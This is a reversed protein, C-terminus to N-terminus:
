CPCGGPSGRPCCSPPRLPVVVLVLQLKDHGDTTLWAGRHGVYVCIGMVPTSSSARMENGTSSLRKSSATCERRSRGLPHLPADLVSGRRRIWKVPSRRQNSRTQRGRLGEEAGGVYARVLIGRSPRQATRAPGAGDRAAAQAAVSGPPVTAEWVWISQLGLASAVNKQSNVWWMTKAGPACRCASDQFITPRQVSASLRMAWVAAPGAPEGLM